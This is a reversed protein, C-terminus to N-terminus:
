IQITEDKPNLVEEQESSSQFGMWALVFLKKLSFKSTGAVRPQRRYEVITQKFPLHVMEGRMFKRNPLKLYVQLAKKSILRFDGVDKIITSNFMRVFRYFIWASLKRFGSEGERASRRAHIVDFGDQAKRVLESITEIPDQLDADMTVIMDGSAQELGIQMAAQHGANRHLTKIHINQAHEAWDKLLVSTQDMSGDDVLVVEIPMPFNSRFHEVTERLIPVVLEENYVPIVLSLILSSM